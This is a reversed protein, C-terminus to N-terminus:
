FMIRLVFWHLLFALWFMVYSVNGVNPVVSMIVHYHVSFLALSAVRVCKMM